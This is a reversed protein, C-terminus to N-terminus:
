IVYYFDVTSKSYTIVKGDESERDNGKPSSSPERKWETTRQDHYDSERLAKSTNGVSRELLEGCQLVTTNYIDSYMCARCMKQHLTIIEADASLVNRKNMMFPQRYWTWPIADKNYKSWLISKMKAKLFDYGFTDIWQSKRSSAFSETHLHSYHLLFAVNFLLNGITKASSFTPFMKSFLYITCRQWQWPSRGLRSFLLLLQLFSFPDIFYPLSFNKEIISLFPHLYYYCHSFPVKKRRQM